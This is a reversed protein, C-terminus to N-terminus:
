KFMEGARSFPWATKTETRRKDKESLSFALYEGLGTERKLIVTYIDIYAM